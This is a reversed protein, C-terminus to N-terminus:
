IMNCIGIYEFIVNRLGVYEVYNIKVKLNIIIEYIIFNGNLDFFDIICIM